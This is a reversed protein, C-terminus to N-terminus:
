YPKPYSMPVYKAKKTENDLSIKRRGTQFALVLCFSSCLFIASSIIEM